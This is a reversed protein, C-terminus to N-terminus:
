KTEELQWNNIAENSYSVPKQTISNRQVRSPYFTQIRGSNYVNCDHISIEAWAPDEFLIVRGSKGSETFNCNYIEADQVGIMRVVTGLERNCVNAFTCNSITAFPGLTSEDNGGRYINIAEGMINAFVCNEITIFEANYRGKDDNESALKIGQGSITKFWSNSVKISDAFTGKEASIGAFSGENFESFRCNNVTLNYHKLMPAIASVGFPVDGYASRGIFSIGDITVDVGDTIEIFARGRFNKGPVFQPHEIGAKAVIHISKSAEIPQEFPYEGAEDIWLTDGTQMNAVTSALDAKTSQNIHFAEGTRSGEKEFQNKDLWHPGTESKQVPLKPQPYGNIADLGESSEALMLDAESFGSHAVDVDSLVNNEFKVGSIDDLFEVQWDKDDQYIINNSFTTNIPAATRENDSGIGFAIQTCDIFINSDILVNNVQHYRNIPSNPVGNMVALAAFFRKGRIGSFYNHKITHGANIVRLGGTAAVGNGIFYNNEVLNENGHRMALVGECEYFVNGSVANQSSKISVAEVEGNCRDFYNNKLTLHSPKLSQSSAGVRITEGGNSGMRPKPAFYNSDISHYNNIALSDAIEVILTTGLNLKTGIYNHDFRNHTGDITVWSDKKIRDPNSYNIIACETVRTYSAKQKGDESSFSIVSGKPSFGNEFKLGHLVLHSGSIYVQSQGSFITNGANEAMLVIPANEEGNASFHIIVDEYTGSPVLVTDGPKASSIKENLSEVNLTTVKQQDCSFLAFLSLVIFSYKSM